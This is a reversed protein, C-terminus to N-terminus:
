DGWSNQKRNFALVTKIKANVASELDSDEILSALPWLQAATHFFLLSDPGLDVGVATTMRPLKDTVAHIASIRNASKCWRCGLGGGILGLGALVQPTDQGWNCRQSSSQLYSVSFLLQLDRRKRAKTDKHRQEQEREVSHDYSRRLLLNLPPSLDRHSPPRPPHRGVKLCGSWRATAINEPHAFGSGALLDLRL